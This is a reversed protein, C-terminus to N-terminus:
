KYRFLYFSPEALVQKTEADIYTTKLVVASGGALVGGLIRAGASVAKLKEITPEIILTSEPKSPDFESIPDLVNFVTLLDRFLNDNIIVSAKDFLTRGAIRFTINQLTLM